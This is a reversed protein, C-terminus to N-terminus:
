CPTVSLISPAPAETKKTSHVDTFSKDTKLAKQLATICSLAVTPVTISQTTSNSETETGSSASPTKWLFMFLIVAVIIFCLSLLTVLNSKKM